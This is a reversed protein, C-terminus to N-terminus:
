GNGTHLQVRQLSWRSSILFSSFQVGDEVKEM